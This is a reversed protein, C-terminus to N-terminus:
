CGFYIELSQRFNVLLQSLQEDPVSPDAYVAISRDLKVGDEKAWDQSWPFTILVIEGSELRFRGGWFWFYDDSSTPHWPFGFFGKVRESIAELDEGNKPYQAYTQNLEVIGQPFRPVLGRIKADVHQKLSVSFGKM